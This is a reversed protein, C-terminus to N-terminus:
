LRVRELSTGSDQVCLEAGGLGLLWLFSWKSGLQGGGCESGPVAFQM